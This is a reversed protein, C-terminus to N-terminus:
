SASIGTLQFTSRETANTLALITSPKSIRYTGALPVLANLNTRSLNALTVADFTGELALDSANNGYGTTVDFSGPGGSFYALYGQSGSGVQTGDRDFLQQTWLGLCEGSLRLDVSFIVDSGNGYRLQFIRRCKRFGIRRCACKRTRLDTDDCWWRMFRPIKYFCRSGTFSANARSLISREAKFSMSSGTKPLINDIINSTDITKINKPHTKPHREVVCPGYPEPM